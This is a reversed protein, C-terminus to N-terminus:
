KLCYGEINLWERAEKETKFFGRKFGDYSTESAHIKANKQFLDLKVSATNNNVIAERILGKGRCEVFLKVLLLECEPTCLEWENLDSILGWSKNKIPVITKLVTETYAKATEANWAGAVVILLTEGQLTVNFWGHENFM